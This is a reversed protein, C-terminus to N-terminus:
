YMKRQAEIFRFWLSCLPRRRNWFLDERVSNTGDWRNKSICYCWLSVVVVKWRQEKKIKALWEDIRDMSLNFRWWSLQVRPSHLEQFAKHNFNYQLSPFFYYYYSQSAVPCHRRLTIPNFPKYISNQQHLLVRTPQTQISPTMRLTPSRSTLFLPFGTTKETVDTM